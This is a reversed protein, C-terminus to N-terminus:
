EEKLIGNFDRIMKKRIGDILCAEAYLGKRELTDSIEHMDWFINKIKGQTSTETSAEVSLGNKDGGIKEEDLAVNQIVKDIYYSYDLRKLENFDSSAKILKDSVKV